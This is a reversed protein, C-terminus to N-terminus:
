RAVKMKWNCFSEFVFSIDSSLDDMHFQKSPGCCTSLACPKETDYKPCDLVCDESPDESVKNEAFETLEVFEPQITTSHIGENHFFEKVKEALKMYESLNRCRIHASAIIRDGALQWVHFEHVALVGDVNELLRRQIADVREEKDKGM